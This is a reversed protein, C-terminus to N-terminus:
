AGVMKLCAPVAFSAAKTWVTTTPATFRAKVKTAIRNTSRAPRRGSRIAPVAIWTTESAATPGALVKPMYAAQLRALQTQRYPLGVPTVSLYQTYESCRM